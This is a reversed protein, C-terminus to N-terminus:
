LIALSLFFSLLSKRYSTSQDTMTMALTCVAFHLVLSLGGMEEGNDALCLGDEASPLVPFDCMSDWLSIKYCFHEGKGFFAIVEVQLLKTLLSFFGNPTQKSVRGLECMFSMKLCNWWLCPSSTKELFFKKRLELQFLFLRQGQFLGTGCLGKRDGALDRPLLPLPTPPVPAALVAPAQSRNHSSCSEFQEQPRSTLKDAIVFFLFLLPLSSCSCYPSEGWGWLPPLAM